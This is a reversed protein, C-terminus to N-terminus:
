TAKHVYTQINNNFYLFLIIFFLVNRHISNVFCMFFLILSLFYNFYILIYTYFIRSKRLTVMSPEGYGFFQKIVVLKCTSWSM